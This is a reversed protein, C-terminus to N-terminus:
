VKEIGRRAKISEAYGEHRTTRGTIASGGLRATNQAV